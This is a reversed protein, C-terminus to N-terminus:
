DETRRTRPLRVGKGVEGFIAGSEDVDLSLTKRKKTHIFKSLVVFWFGDDLSIVGDGFGVIVWLNFEDNNIREEFIGFEGRKVGFAFEFLSAIINEVPM